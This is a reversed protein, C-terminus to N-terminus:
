RVAEDYVAEFSEGERTDHVRPLGAPRRYVRKVEDAHVRKGLPNVLDILSVSRPALAAAVDPLDFDRLAGPVVQEFMGRHIRQNMMAEYSVLMGELSVRRLRKDFAAAYLLPLAGADKGYGSLQKADVDPRASLLDLGRVIDEARMGALTKGMMVASMGDDYDGFYRAFDGRGIDPRTEGLGRADISLVIVGAKAFHEQAAASGAKGAGDVMLLAPKRAAGGEPIYLLSPVIIGPASEYTLKEIRYGPQAITGFTSVAVPGTQPAFGTRLRAQRIVADAALPTKARAAALAQAHKRNLTFLDEGGLSTAVQGTPTCQLEEATEPRVATEPERDPANKLWRGLWEYGAARRPATYGHGDDAEFMSIRDAIGARAFVDKVEAFTERGGMIPFFDRIASLIRYPKPGFAYIFDPYDLGESVFNPLVQEGDQPGLGRFMRKWSTIFCSPAAVQIRDDLASLYATHLGGGSNGTCAVRKADVEKRSLLYDLARLGDWITYKAITEGVLLSQIGLETHETTSAGVKSDQFDADYLQVREGQGIPDWTLAVYGRRALTALIQQWVPYSMAGEEHGIPFLVAPYPGSGRTPLYLNATVFFNPQSEFVVKEIKYGDRELTGVVRANLPTREPLGGLMRIIRARVSQQRARLSNLDTIGAIEAQRRALHEAARANLWSPLMQRLDKFDNLDGLFNLQGAPQAPAAVASLSTASLMIAFLLFCRKM